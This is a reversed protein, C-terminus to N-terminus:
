GSRFQAPGLFENVRALAKCAKQHQSKSRTPDAHALVIHESSGDPDGEPDPSINFGLSRAASAPFRGFPTDPFREAMTQRRSPTDIYCSPEDGSTFAFSTVRPIGNEVKWWNPDVLARLLLTHGSIGPDDPRV